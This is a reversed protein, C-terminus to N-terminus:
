PVVPTGIISCACAHEWAAEAKAVSDYGQYRSSEFSLVQFSTASRYFGKLTSIVLAPCEGLKFFM